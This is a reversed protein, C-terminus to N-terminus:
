TMVTLKSKSHEDRKLIDQMSQKEEIIEKSNYKKLLEDHKKQMVKAMGFTCAVTSGVGAAIGIAIRAITNIKKTLPAVLAFAGVISLAFIINSWLDMNKVQKTYSKCFVDAKDKPVKYARPYIKKGGVDVQVYGNELPKGIKTEISVM